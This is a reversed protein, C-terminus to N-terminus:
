RQLASGRELRHQVFPARAAPGQGFPLEPAAAAARHELARVRPEPVHRYLEGVAVLLLLQLALCREHLAHGVLVDALQVLVVDGGVALEKRHDQLQQLVAAERLADLLAGVAADALELGDLDGEVDQVSERVHVALVDDMTVTRWVGKAQRSGANISPATVSATLGEFMMSVSTSPRKMQLSMSKDMEATSIDARSSTDWVNLVPM